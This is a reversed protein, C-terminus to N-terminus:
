IHKQNRRASSFKHFYKTNHDGCKLWTARSKQRWSEEETKLIDNREAELTHLHTEAVIDVGVRSLGTYSWSIEEELSELKRLKIRRNHRVWAKIRSKLTKLKWVIRHQIDLEDLFTPDGWVDKVILSFNEEALWTPNLKFPYAVHVQTFDFQAIVPAHDSIFPLEVWSRYRGVVSLLSEAV